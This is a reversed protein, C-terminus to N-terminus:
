SPDEPFLEVVDGEESAWVEREGHREIIWVVGLIVARGMLM